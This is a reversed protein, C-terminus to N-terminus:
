ATSEPRAHRDVRTPRPRFRPLRPRRLRAFVSSLNACSRLTCTPSRCIWAYRPPLRTLRVYLLRCWPVSHMPLADRRSCPIPANQPRVSAPGSRPPNPHIELTSLSCRSIYLVDPLARAILCLRPSRKLSLARVPWTRLERATRFLSWRCDLMGLSFLTRFIIHRHTISALHCSLVPARVKVLGM